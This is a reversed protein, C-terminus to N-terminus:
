LASSSSSPHLQALQQLEHEELQRIRELLIDIKQLLASDRDAQARDRRAAVVAAILLIPGTFAALASMFLNSLIFPYRDWAWPFWTGTNLAWWIGLTLALGIIFKWSGIFTTVQEALREGFTLTNEATSRPTTNPLTM